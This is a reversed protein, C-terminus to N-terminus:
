RAAAPIQLSELKTRIDAPIAAPGKDDTLVIVSDCTGLAAGNQFLASAIVFSTRGVERVGTAALIPDPFNGERLYAISVHAILPRFAADARVDANAVGLVEWNFRVRADEYFRAIAVNNLHRAIDMDGFRTTIEIKHPYIAPDLRRPNPKM